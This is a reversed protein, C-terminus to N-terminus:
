GIDHVDEILMVAAVFGGLRDIGAVLLNAVLHDLGFQLKLGTGSLAYVLQQSRAIM